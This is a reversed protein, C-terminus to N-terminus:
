STQVHHASRPDTSSEHNRGSQKAVNNQRSRPEGSSNENATRPETSSMANVVISGTVSVVLVYLRRRNREVHSASLHGQAVVRDAPAVDM